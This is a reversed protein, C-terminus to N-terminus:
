EAVSDQQLVPEAIEPVQDEAVSFPSGILQIAKFMQRAMRRIRSNQELMDIMDPIPIRLEAGALLLKEKVDEYAIQVQQLQAECETISFGEVDPNALELLTVAAGSAHAQLAACAGAGGYGIVLVDTEAHWHDIDAANLPKNPDLKDTTVAM